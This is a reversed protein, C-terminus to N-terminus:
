DDKRDECHLCQWYIKGLDYPNEYVKVFQHQCKSIKREVPEDSQQNLIENYLNDRFEHNMSFPSGSGMFNVRLSDRLVELLLVVQKDSIKM